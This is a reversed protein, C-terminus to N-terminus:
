FLGFVLSNKSHEKNKALKLLSLGQNLPDNETKETNKKENATCLQTM